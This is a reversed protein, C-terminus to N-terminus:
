PLAFVAVYKVSCDLLMYNYSPGSLGAKKLLKIWSGLVPTVCGLLDSQNSGGEQFNARNM